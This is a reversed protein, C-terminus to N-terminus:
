MNRRRTFGLVSSIWVDVEVALAWAFLIWALGEFVGLVPESDSLFYSLARLGHGTSLTWLLSLGCVPASVALVPASSARIAGKWDSTRLSHIIVDRRSGPM